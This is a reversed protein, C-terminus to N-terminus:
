KKHLCAWKCAIFWKSQCSLEVSQYQDSCRWFNSCEQINILGSARIRLYIEYFKVYKKAIWGIKWHRLLFWCNKLDDGLISYWNDDILVKSIINNYYNIYSKQMFIDKEISKNQSLWNNIWIVQFAM